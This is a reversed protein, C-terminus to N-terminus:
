RATVKWGAPIAGQQQPQGGGTQQPSQMTGELPNAQALAQLVAYFGSDLQGNEKIYDNAAQAVQVKRQEIAKRAALVEAVSAEQNEIRGAMNQLFERDADSMAGPMGAGGSPNRLELASEGLFRQLRETKQIDDKYAAGSTVFNAARKAGLELGAGTGTVAGSLDSETQSLRVLRSQANIADQQIKPMQQALQRATEKDFPSLPARGGGPLLQPNELKFQQTQTKQERMWDQYGGKFGSQVAFQYERVSNPAGQQPSFHESVIKQTVEPPLLGSRGVLQGFTADDYQQPLSQGIEPYMQAFAPAWQSYVQARAERPTKAIGAIFAMGDERMQQKKRDQQGQDFETRRMTNLANREQMAAADQQGAHYNQFIGGRALANTM